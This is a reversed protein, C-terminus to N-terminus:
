NVRSLEREKRRTQQQIASSVEQWELENKESEQNTSAMGFAKTRFALHPIIAASAQCIKM